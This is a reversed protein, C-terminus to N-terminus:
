LQPWTGQRMQHMVSTMLCANADHLMVHLIYSLLFFKCRGLSAEAYGLFKAVSCETGAPVLVVPPFTTQQQAVQQQYCYHIQPWGQPHVGLGM